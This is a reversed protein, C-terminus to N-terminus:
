RLLFVFLFLLYYVCYSFCITYRLCFFAHLWRVYTDLYMCIYIIHYVLRLLFRFRPSLMITGVLVLCSSVFSTWFRFLFFPLFLLFFFCILLLFVLVFVARLPFVCVESECAARPPIAGLRFLIYNNLVSDTVLSLLSAFRFAFFAICSVFPFVARRFSLVFLFPFVSFSLLSRFFSSFLFFYPFPFRCPHGLPVISFVPM